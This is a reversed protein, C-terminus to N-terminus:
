SWAKLPEVRELYVPWVKKRTERPLKAVAKAFSHTMGEPFHFPDHPNKYAVGTSGLGNMEGDAVMIACSVTHRYKGLRPHRDFGRHFSIQVKDDPSSFTKSTLPIKM